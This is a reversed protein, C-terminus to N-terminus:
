RAGTHLFRYPYLMARRRAEDLRDPCITRMPAREMLCDCRDAFRLGTEDDRHIVGTKM